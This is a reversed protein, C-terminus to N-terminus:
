FNGPCQFFFISLSASHQAGMGLQVPFVFVPIKGEMISTPPGGTGGASSTTSMISERWDMMLPHVDEAEWVNEGM